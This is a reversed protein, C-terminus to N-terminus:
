KIQQNFLLPFGMQGSPVYIVQNKSDKIQDVWLWSLYSPNDKLSQGIIQNSTAIGHARLTDAAALLTASEFKAKAEMVQVEKEFRAKALSAQGDARMKYIKYQPCGWFGLAVICALVFFTISSYTLEKKM